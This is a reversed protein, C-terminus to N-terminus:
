DTPEIDTGRQDNNTGIGFEMLINKIGPSIEPLNEPVKKPEWDTLVERSKQSLKNM